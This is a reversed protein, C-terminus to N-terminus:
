AAKRKPSVSLVSSYNTVIFPVLIICHTCSSKISLRLLNIKKYFTEPSYSLLMKLINPLRPVSMIMFMTVYLYKYSASANKPWFCV